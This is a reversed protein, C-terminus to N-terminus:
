LLQVYDNKTINTLARGLDFDLKLIAKQAEQLDLNEIDVDVYDSDGNNTTNCAYIYRFSHNAHLTLSLTAVLTTRAPDSYIKCILTCGEKKITLYYWAGVTLYSKSNEYSNGGYHEILSLTRVYNFDWTRVYIAPDPTANWSDMDEIVNALAWVVCRDDRGTGVGSKFQVLHEFDKFYGVGKDKYLCAFENGYARHDIHNKGVLDIHENPDIEVWSGDTFDEYPM